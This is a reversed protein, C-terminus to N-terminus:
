SCILWLTADSLNMAYIYLKDTIKLCFSHYYNVDTVENIDRYATCTNLLIYGFAFSDHKGREGM